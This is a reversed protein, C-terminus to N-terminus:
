LEAQFRLIDKVERNLRRAARNLIKLDQEERLQRRRREVFQLVAQEIVKSRPVGPSAVEDIAKLTSESLTISTKLRM